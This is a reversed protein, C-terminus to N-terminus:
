RHGGGSAIGAHLRRRRHNGPCTACHSTGLVAYADQRQAGTTVRALLESTAPEYIEFALGTAAIATLV